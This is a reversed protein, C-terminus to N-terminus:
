REGLGSYFNSGNTCHNARPATLSTTHRSYFELTVPEIGTHTATKKNGQSLEKELGGIRDGLVNKSRLIKSNFCM